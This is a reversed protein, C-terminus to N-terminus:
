TLQKKYDYIGQHPTFGVSRYLGVAPPNEVVNNVVATHLGHAKMRRMGEYMLAKTLGKGQFDKHCGVPEFLGRGSVTDVWYILFAALTGDPAVVVLERDPQFGPTRMVAGYTEATWTSGFAAGHVIGLSEAEHVGEVARITFGDPLVSAPIPDSLPRHNNMMYPEAATLNFGAAELAARRPADCAAAPSLVEAASASAQSENGAERLISAMRATGDDILAAELAGGRQAPHMIVDFFGYRAPYCMILAVIKGAADECLPFHEPQFAGRWSNSMSHLFDGPHTLMCESNAYTEAVFRVARDLDDPSYPRLRFGDPLPFTM